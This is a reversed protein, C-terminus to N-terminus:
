SIPSSKMCHLDARLFSAFILIVRKSFIYSEFLGLQLITMTTKKACVHIDIATSKGYSLSHIM